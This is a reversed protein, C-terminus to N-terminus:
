AESDDKKSKNESQKKVKKANKEAAMRANRQAVDMNHGLQMFAANGTAIGLIRFVSM